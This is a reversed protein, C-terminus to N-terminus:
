NACFTIRYFKYLINIILKKNHTNFSNSKGICNRPGVGFPLYAGLNINHKNEDSFREPDFKDPNPYYKPDHHLAYIPIWYNDGKEIKFKLGDEDEYVYDKVCVRDTMPAPPWKRLAEAVVMDMYKMNQIAEYSVQQGNLASSTEQIEEYLKQQIDKNVALEYSLFSLATSVTDFGALFFLFCQAAIEDDTWQRKVETKGVSSEEVTAFGDKSVVTDTGDEQNREIKGRKVNILLNLMDPRFINNEERYKISNTILDTFYNSAQKNMLRIKFFQMVKPILAYGAFKIMIFASKFDTLKKGTLYFANDRDKFSNVQIGFASTAIVDNAFRTFIDKMEYELKDTKEAEKLFYKALNDGCVSILQFMQRMKSGTFAPSLTARMDRWKQGRLTILSNGFLSDLKEDIVVRHDIFSDFDKVALQKIIEPDKLVIIPQGVDFIGFVRFHTPFSAHMDNLYIFKTQLNNGREPSSIM